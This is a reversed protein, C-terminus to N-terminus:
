DNFFHLNCVLVIRFWGLEISFCAIRVEHPAHLELCVRDHLVQPFGEQWMQFFAELFCLYAM